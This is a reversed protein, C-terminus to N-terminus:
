LLLRLQGACRMGGQLCCALLGILALAKPPQRLPQLLLQHGELALADQEGEAATAPSQNPILDAQTAAQHRPARGSSSTVLSLPQQLASTHLEPQCCCTPQSESRLLIHKSGLETAAIDAM